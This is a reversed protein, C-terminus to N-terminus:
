QLQYPTLRRTPDLPNSVQFTLGLPGTWDAQTVLTNRSEEVDKWIRHFWGFNVSVGRSLQHTVQLSTERNFARVENPDKARSIITKGFNLNSGPNNIFENEQAIDDHNLDAWNYSSTSNAVPSYRSAFLGTWAEYYKSINGKLATKGDGFLDYAASFRPALDGNWNPLNYQAPYFRGPVFRRAAMSNEPLYSNFNEIRLGPNLTLRRITWTDQVYIGIDYKVTAKQIYRCNAIVVKSPAGNLYEQALDAHQDLYNDNYGWSWSIGTKFNHAGTVFSTSSQLVERLNHSRTLNAGSHWTTCGAVLVCEPVKILTNNTHQANAFWEPTGRAFLDNPFPGTAYDVRYQSYGGEVLWRNNLTSTWKAAAFNYIGNKSDRTVAASPDVGNGSRYPVSKFVRDQTASIKNTDNLQYTLRGTLNRVRTAEFKQSGDAQLGNVIGLTTEMHRPSAFFWLRNKM